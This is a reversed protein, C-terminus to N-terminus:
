CVAICFSGFAVSGTHYRLLWKTGVAVTGKGKSDSNCEFYWICASCGIIFQTCGIIFANIWFLGFIHYMFIWRTTKSWKVETIFPYGDRPEPNGTSFVYIASWLWFVFWILTIIFSAMPLLFIQM